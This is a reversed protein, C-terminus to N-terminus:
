NDITALYEDILPPLATVQGQQNRANAQLMEIREDTGPHTSLFVPPENDAM